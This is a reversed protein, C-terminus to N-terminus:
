LRPPGMTRVYLHRCPNQPHIRSIQRLKRIRVIRHHGTSGWIREERGRRNSVGSDVGLGINKSFIGIRNRDVKESKWSLSVQTRYASLHPIRTHYARQEITATGSVITCSCNDFVSGLFYTITPEGKSLVAVPTSVAGQLASPMAMIIFFLEMRRLHRSRPHRAPKCIM